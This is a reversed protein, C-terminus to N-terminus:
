FLIGEESWISIIVRVYIYMKKGPDKETVIHNSKHCRGGAPSPNQQVKRRVPTAASELKNQDEKSDTRSTMKLKM